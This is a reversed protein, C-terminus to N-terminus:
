HLWALTDRATHPQHRGASDMSQREGCWKTEWSGELVEHTGAFLPRQQDNTCKRRHGWVLFTWNIWTKFNGDLCHVESRATSQVHQCMLVRKSCKWGISSQIWMRFNGVSKRISSDLNRKPMRTHSWDTTHVLWLFRRNMQGLCKQICLGYGDSNGTKKKKLSTM